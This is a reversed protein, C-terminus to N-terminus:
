ESKEPMGALEVRKLLEEQYKTYENIVASVRESVIASQAIMLDPAVLAPIQAYTAASESLDRCAQGTKGPIRAAAISAATALQLAAKRNEDLESSRMNRNAAYIDAMPVSAYELLKLAAEASALERQSHIQATATRETYYGTIASGILIGVLGIGAPQLDKLAM